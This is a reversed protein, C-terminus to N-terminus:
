NKIDIVGFNNEVDRGLAVTQGVQPENSYFVSLCRTTPPPEVIYDILISLDQDHRYRMQVMVFGFKCIGTVVTGYTIKQYKLLQSCTIKQTSDTGNAVDVKEKALVNVANFLQDSNKIEVLKNFDQNTTLNALLSQFVHNAPTKVRIEDSASHGDELQGTAMNESITQTQQNSQSISDDIGAFVTSCM